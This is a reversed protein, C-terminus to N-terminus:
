PRDPDWNHWIALEGGPMSVIRFGRPGIVEWAEFKQDAPVHISEGGEFHVELRGDKFAKGARVNKRLLSLLPAASAPEAEIDVTYEVGAPGRYTLEGEINLNVGNILLLGLAAYDVTCRTVQQGAVPLIWGDDSEVPELRDNM